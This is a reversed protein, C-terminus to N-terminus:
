EDRGYPTWWWLSKNPYCSIRRFINWTQSIHTMIMINVQRILQELEKLDM